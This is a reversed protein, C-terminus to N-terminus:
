VIYVDYRVSKGRQVHTPERGAVTPARSPRKVVVRRDATEIAATLLAASDVDDGILQRLVRMPKREATKRGTPFMPDLYVTSPRPTESPWDRLLTISDGVIVRLLSATTPEREAARRLADRLLAAVVPSREAATVHCGMSALLWADEGFGATADFVTPRPEGKRLGVAKLLPQRLARGPGSRTDLQTLDIAIPHGGVLAPDGQLVRLELQDGTRVLTMPTTIDDLKAIFPLGVADALQMAALVHPSGESPEVTVSVRTSLDSANM